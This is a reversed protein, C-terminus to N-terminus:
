PQSNQMSEQLMKIINLMNNEWDEAMPDFPIVVAGIERAITEANERDFQQQILIVRINEKRALDVFERLGRATPANGGQEVATQKLGYDHAFYSLAPHFIMFSKGSLSQFAAQALSDLHRIRKLLKKLNENYEAKKEPFLEELAQAANQALVLAQRPSLWYHPDTGKPHHENSSAEHTHECEGAILQVGESWDVLNLHPHSNRFKPEWQEEFALHGNKMWLKANGLKVMQQPTPDYTEHSAGPSVLVEVEFDNGSIQEVFYKQPLISIVLVKKGAHETRNCSILTLILAPLILNKKM